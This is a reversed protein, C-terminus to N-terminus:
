PSVQQTLLRTAETQPAHVVANFLLPIKDRLAPVRKMYALLANMNQPSPPKELLQQLGKDQPDMLTDRLLKETEGRYKGVLMDRISNAVGGMKGPVSPLNQNGMFKQLTNSGVRPTAAETAINRYAADSLAGMQQLEDGSFVQALQGRNTNLWTKLKQGDMFPTDGGRASLKTTAMAKSMFYDRLAKKAAAGGDAHQGAANLYAKVNEPTKTVSDLMKAPDTDLYGQVDKPFYTGHTDATFKRAANYADGLDQATVAGGFKAAKAQASDLVASGTAEPMGLLANEDGLNSLLRDDMGKLLRVANSNGSKQADRISQGLTSRLDKIEGFPMRVQTEDAGDSAYKAVTAKFDDLFDGAARQIVRQNTVTQKNIYGDVAASTKAADVPTTMPVQKWLEKEQAGRAEQAGTLADHAATSADALPTDTAAIQGFRGRIVANNQRQQAQALAENAVGGVNRSRVVQELNQIGPDLSQGGATLNVGPQSSPQLVPNGTASEQLIKQVTDRAEQEPNAMQRTLDAIGGGSKKAVTAALGLGKIAGEGLPGLGAGIAINTPTDGPMQAGYAAGTAGSRGMFAAIRPALSPAGALGKEALGGVGEGLPAMSLISTPAYMGYYTSPNQEAAYDRAPQEQDQTSDNQAKAALYPGPNTVGGVGGAALALLQKISRGTDTLAAGAPVGLSEGFSPTKADASWQKVQEQNHIQPFNKQIAAAMDAQSMGDPFNLTGIGPVNVTQTM